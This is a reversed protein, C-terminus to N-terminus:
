RTVVIRARMMPHFRCVYDVTGPQAARWTWSKDAAVDGSEIRQAPATVTHPVLDRNQWVVTDGARIALVAPKFAMGEIVVTHTVPAALAAGATLLTIAAAALWSPRWGTM